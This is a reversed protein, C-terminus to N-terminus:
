EKMYMHIDKVLLSRRLILQSEKFRKEKQMGLYRHSLLVTMEFDM